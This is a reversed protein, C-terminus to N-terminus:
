YKSVTPQTKQGIFSDGMSHQHLRSVNSLLDDMMSLANRSNVRNMCHICCLALHSAVKPGFQDAQAILGGKPQWNVVSVM